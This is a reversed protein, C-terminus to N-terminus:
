PELDYIRRHPENTLIQAWKDDWLVVVFSFVIAYLRDMISVHKCLPRIQVFLFKETNEEWEVEM